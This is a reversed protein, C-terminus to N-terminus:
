KITGVKKIRALLFNSFIAMKKFFIKFPAFIFGFFKSVGAWFFQFVPRLLRGLTLECLFIGVILGANCGLRIDGHCVAFNLWLWAWYLGALFCLDGWHPHKVRVPRLFGYYLGLGLGMLAAVSFHRISEAPTM